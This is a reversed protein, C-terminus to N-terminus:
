PCSALAQVCPGAISSSDADAICEAARIVRLCEALLDGRVVECDGLGPAGGLRARQETACADASEFVGGPGIRECTAEHDCLARAVRSAAEYPPSGSLPSPALAAAESGSMSPLPLGVFGESPPPPTLYAGRGVVAPAIGQSVETTAGNPYVFGTNDLTRLEPSGAAVIQASSLEASSVVLPGSCSAVAATFATSLLGTGARRAIM